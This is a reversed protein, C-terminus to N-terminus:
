SRLEKQDAVHMQLTTHPPTHGRRRTIGRVCHMCVRIRGYRGTPNHHTPITYLLAPKHRALAASLAAPVIGDEDCAVPVITLRRDSFIRLALFYSEQEVLVTSTNLRITMPHSARTPSSAVTFERM